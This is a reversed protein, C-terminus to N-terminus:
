SFTRLALSIPGVVTVSADAVPVDPIPPSASFAGGAMRRVTTEEEGGKRTRRIVVLDGDRAPNATDVLVIWGSLIGSNVAHEDQVLFAETGAKPALPLTLKRPNSAAPERWVGAEAIGVLTAAPALDVPPQAGGADRGAQRRPTAQTGDLYEFDCDLAPALKRLAPERMSSKKGILLDNVAGKKLGARREAEFPNIKLAKLRERVRAELGIAM